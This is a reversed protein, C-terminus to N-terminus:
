PEVRLTHGHRALRERLWKETEKNWKAPGDRLDGVLEKTLWPIRKEKVLVDVVPGSFPSLFGAQVLAQGLM